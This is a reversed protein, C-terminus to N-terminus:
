TVRAVPNNNQNAKQLAAMVDDRKGFARQTGGHLVLVKLQPCFRRAENRWNLVLSTPAMTRGKADREAKVTRYGISLGDIAGATLLAAHIAGLTLCVFVASFVSRIVFIRVRTDEEPRANAHARGFAHEVWWMAETLWRWSPTFRRVGWSPAPRSGAHPDQVSM